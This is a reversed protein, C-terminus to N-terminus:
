ANIPGRIQIEKADIKLKSWSTEVLLCPSDMIAQKIETSHIVGDADSVWSVVVDDGWKILHKTLNATIKSISQKDIKIPIGVNLVVIGAHEIKVVKGVNFGNDIDFTLLKQGIRHNPLLSYLRTNFASNMLKMFPELVGETLFSDLDSEALVPNIIIM